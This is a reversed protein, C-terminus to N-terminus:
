GSRPKIMLMCVDFWASYKCLHTESVGVLYVNKGEFLYISYCRGSVLYSTALMERKYLEAEAKRMRELAETERRQM